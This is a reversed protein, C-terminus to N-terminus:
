EIKTIEGLTLQDFLCDICLDQGTAEHKWLYTERLGNPHVEAGCQDCYYHTILALSPPNGCIRKEVEIM